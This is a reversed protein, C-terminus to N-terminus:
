MGSGSHPKTLLSVVTMQEVTARPYCVCRDAMPLHRLRDGFWTKPFTFKTLKQRQRKAVGAAIRARSTRM